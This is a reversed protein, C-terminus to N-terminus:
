LRRSILAHGREFGSLSESMTENLRKIGVMSSLHEQVSVM